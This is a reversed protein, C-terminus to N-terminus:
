AAAVQDLPSRVGLGPEATVRTYIMTTEVKRHGLLQQITRIDAGSELLHTAFSHRLTHCTARKDLRALDAAEKVARDVAGPHAHWRLGRGTEPDHRVVASAFVFQWRFERAASHRKHELSMPVPAYGRGRDLDRDHRKRVYEVQAWIRPELAAPLMTVRDKDGKGGRVLVRRRDVDLDCVRLRCCESVRLGSGYMLESMLRYASGDPMAAFLRRVEDRSLVTPLRVPRRARVAAMSGLPRKLVHRYLFLLVALAQNQTSEAVSRNVALHTLFAEVDAAGLDSPHRWEGTRLRHFRLFEEVWRAYTQTTRRALRRVACVARYEDLPKM